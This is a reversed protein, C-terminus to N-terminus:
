QVVPIDTQLFRDVARKLSVLPANINICTERLGKRFTIVDGDQDTVFGKDALEQLFVKIEDDKANVVIKEKKKKPEEKKKSKDAVAEPPLISLKEIIKDAITEKNDPAMLKVGLEHAQTVLEEKKLTLLQEKTVTM